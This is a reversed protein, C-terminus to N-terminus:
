LVCRFNLFTHIASDVTKVEGLSEDFMPVRTSLSENKMSPAAWVWPAPEKKRFTSLVERFGHSEATQFDAKLCESHAQRYSADSFLTDIWKRGTILDLWLTRKTEYIVQFIFGKSTKCHTRRALEPCEPILPNVVAMIDQTKILGPGVYFNSDATCSGPNAEVLDLTSLLIPILSSKSPNPEKSYPVVLADFRDVAYVVVVSKLKPSYVHQGVSIALAYQSFLLTVMSYYWKAHM